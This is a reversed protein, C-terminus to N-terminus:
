LETVEVDIYLTLLSPVTIYLVSTISFNIYNEGIRLMNFM